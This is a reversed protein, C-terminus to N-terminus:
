VSHRHRKRLMLVQLITGILVFCIGVTMKVLSDDPSTALPADLPLRTFSETFGPVLHFFFTMSYSVIAIYPSTRGFPKSKQEAFLALGIVLLTIIGLIHPKGFGGHQFIGFGTLCTIITTFVYTKGVQSFYSIQKYKILSIIGTALAVLSIATHIMGLTTLNAIM